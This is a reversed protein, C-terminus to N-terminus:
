VEELGLDLRTSVVPQGQLLSPCKDLQSFSIPSGSTSNLWLPQRTSVQDVASLILVWCVASFM